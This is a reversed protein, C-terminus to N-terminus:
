LRFDALDNGDSGGGSVRNSWGLKSWGGVPEAASVLHRSATGTATGPLRAGVRETFPRETAPIRGGVALRAGVTKPPLPQRPGRPRLAGEVPRLNSVVRVYPPGRM